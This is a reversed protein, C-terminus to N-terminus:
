EAAEAAQAEALFASPAAEVGKKWEIANVLFFTIVSVMCGFVVPMLYKTIEVGNASMIQWVIFGITGTVISILGSKKTARPVVMGLGYAAFPGACRIGFAFTNMSTIPIALFSILMAVACCLINCLRTARVEKMGDLDKNCYPKYLDNIIMTSMCLLNSDAS